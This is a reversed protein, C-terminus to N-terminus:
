RPAPYSWPSFQMMGPPVISVGFHSSPPILLLTWNDVAGKSISLSWMNWILRSLNCKYGIRKGYWLPVARHHLQSEPSTPDDCFIVFSTWAPVPSLVKILCPYSTLSHAFSYNPQAPFLLTESRSLITIKRKREVSLQRFSLSTWFHQSKWVRYAFSKLDCKWSHKQQVKEKEICNHANKTIERIQKGKKWQLM